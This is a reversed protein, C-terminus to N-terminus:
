NRQGRACASAGNGAGEDVLGMKSGRVPSASDRWGGSAYPWGRSKAVERPAVGSGRATIFRGFGHRRAWAGRRAVSGRGVEAQVAIM